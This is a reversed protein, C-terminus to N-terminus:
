AFVRPITWDTKKLIVRTLFIGQLLQASQDPVSVQTVATRRMSLM